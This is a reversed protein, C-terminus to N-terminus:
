CEPTLLLWTQDGRVERLATQIEDATLLSLDIPPLPVNAMDAFVTAVKHSKCFDVRIKDTVGFSIEDHMEVIITASSLAGSTSGNLLEAEYGECDCLILTLPRLNRDLWALSCFGAVEVNSTRNESAMERCAAPRGPDTDFAIM